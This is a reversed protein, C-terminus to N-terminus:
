LRGKIEKVMWEIYTSNQERMSFSPLKSNVMLDGNHIVCEINTLEQLLTLGEEGRILVCKSFSEEKFGEVLIVDLELPRYFELLKVMSWEPNSVSWQFVGAGEVGSAIAGAQKHKESDTLRSEKDPEGGHGHHKLTGVRLGATSLAEVLETMVTTKGSNKYGVVQWVVFPFTKM